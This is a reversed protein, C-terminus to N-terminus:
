LSPMQSAKVTGKDVILKKGRHPIDMTIGVDYCTLPVKKGGFLELQSYAINTNKKDVLFM